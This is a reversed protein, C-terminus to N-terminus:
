KVHSNIADSATIQWLIHFGYQVIMGNSGTTM